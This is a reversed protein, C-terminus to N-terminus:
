KVEHIKNYCCTHKEMVTKDMHHHGFYHHKFRLKSKGFIDDLLKVTYSYEWNHSYLKDRVVSPADHTLIYDVKWIAKDLSDYARKSEVYNPEEEKWWSIGETRHAQDVSFAGGLCFFAKNAITYVIGRRLYFVSDNVYGVKDGFMEVRDLLALKTHNDHNGDIFLTTWPKEKLWNLWYREEDTQTNNFIFGFDGVIIVYDNKDLEKGETFKKSNFRKMESVANGHTDGTIFIKNM